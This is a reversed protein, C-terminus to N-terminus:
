TCTRDMLCIVAVAPVTGIMTPTMIVRGTIAVTGSQSKTTAMNAVLTPSATTFVITKQGYGGASWEEDTLTGDGGTYFHMEESSLKSFTSDALLQAVSLRVLRKM